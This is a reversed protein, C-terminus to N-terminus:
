LGCSLKGRFPSPCQLFRIDFDYEHEPFLLNETNARYNETHEGQSGRGTCSDAAAGHGAEELRDVLSADGV